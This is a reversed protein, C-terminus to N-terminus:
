VAQSACAPCEVSEQVDKSMPKEPLSRVDGALIDSVQEEFEGFTMSYMGGRAGEFRTNWSALGQGFALAESFDDPGLKSFREFGGTALKHIIGATCWDGSGCTDELRISQFASMPTWPQAKGDTKSRYRLGNEGLTQIELLVSSDDNLVNGPDALREEAYKLIHTIKLAEAFHKPDSKASPEFIVVAGNDFALKALTLMARSLRDMFFVSADDMHPAVVDVAAQTIAKFRPLHKGCSPCAWLFKHTPNGDRDSKIQQVIIPTHGTPECQAFDLQVGWKALDALVRKSAADGNMRAIPFSKWGLFALISLVNGCTGGTWSKVPAAPDMGLVLDLAILGAGFAKPAEISTM